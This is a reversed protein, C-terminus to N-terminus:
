FCPVTTGDARRWHPAWALAYTTVAIDKKKPRIQLRELSAQEGEITTRVRELDAALNDQVQQLRQQLAEVTEEARGIDKSEKLIRGTRRATTSARGLTGSSLTKRGMLASLITTGLSVAADVKSSRAQEKEREVAAEARRLREELTAIKSAYQDRVKELMQDRREYSQQRVRILFETETEGPNSVLKLGSHKILELTRNRYLWDAFQGAGASFTRADAVGRPVSGYAADDDFPTSEWDEPDGALPTAKDWDVLASRSKWEGMLAVPDETLVGARADSFYLRATAAVVPAYFLEADRELAGRVPLFYQPIEQPLVPRSARQTAATAAKLTVAAQETSQNSQSEVAVQRVPDTLTKIQSRTLPGPLYSMVWRTHFTVPQDEHVNNMLFVRKDLGAILKELHARDFRGGSSDVGALGDLMREKDRETKLRGIFWTGCNSLGKYDLDVPNQTALVLGVGFARAQKLLTLLPGKSPPNAVPPMYGFIEDMYLLARLSSTGPQMRMWGLLRNLLTSVFFMREADNLHAISFIAIRPRAGPGYLLSQIDLPVGEIWASFGPAALLSNIKMAFAFRDKSPFFSELDFVGIRAVPPEGISRILEALGLSTGARWAQDLITSLLIHERSQVPDAEVGVLTLLSTVTSSVQERLLDPDNLIAPPPVDFSKLVSVPIGASSGPTYICFDAAQHLRRIRSEDQGWAALGKKWLAAQNEAFADVSLNARAAEDPNVWPRFSSAELSEFSLMLNGLDGKPDIVIAPIGDIAAEELLGVCLGTKGSGTMGVCVAHTTLDRADYLVLDDQLTNKECDYTKGLYFAGLKEFDQM